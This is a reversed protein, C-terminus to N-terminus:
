LGPNWHASSLFPPQLGVETDWLESEHLVRDPDFVIEEYHNLVVAIAEVPLAYLVCVAVLISPVIRLLAPPAFSGTLPRSAHM